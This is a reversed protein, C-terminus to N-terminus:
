FQWPHRFSFRTSKSYDIGQRGVWLMQPRDTRNIGNPLLGPSYNTILFLGHCPAGDGRGVM